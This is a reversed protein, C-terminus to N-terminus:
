RVALSHVLECLFSFCPCVCAIIRGCMCVDEFGGFLKFMEALGEAAKYLFEGVCVTVRMNMNVYEYETLQVIGITRKFIM